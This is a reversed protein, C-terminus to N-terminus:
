GDKRNTLAGLIRAKVSQGACATRLSASRMKVRSRIRMMADMSYRRWSRRYWRTGSFRHCKIYKM